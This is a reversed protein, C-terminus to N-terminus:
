YKVVEAIDSASFHWGIHKTFYIFRKNFDKIIFERNLYEDMKGEKNWNPPRKDLLRITSGIRFPEIKQYNKISNNQIHKKLNEEEFILSCIGGDWFSQLILPKELVEQKIIFFYKM